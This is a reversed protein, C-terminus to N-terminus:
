RAGDATAARRSLQHVGYAAVWLVSTTLHLWLWISRWTDSVATQLFYGSLVMPFLSFTLAVGTKRREAFGSRVRAWAHRRWIMGCAFVLLPATWVHLHQTFPQWPHNVLAFEDAPEAFYVMWGYVLGSGGVLLNSLHQLWAEARTM